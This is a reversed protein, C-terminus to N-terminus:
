IQLRNHTYLYIMFILFITINKHTKMSHSDLDVTLWCCSRSIASRNFFFDELYLLCIFWKTILRCVCVCLGSCFKKINIFKRIYGPWEHGHSGQRKTEVYLTLPWHGATPTMNARINESRQGQRVYQCSRLSDIIGTYFFSSLLKRLLIKFLNVTWCM